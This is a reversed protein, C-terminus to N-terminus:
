HHNVASGKKEMFFKKRQTMSLLFGYRLRRFSPSVSALWYDFLQDTGTLIMEKRDTYQWEGDEWQYPDGHLLRSPKFTTGRRGFGSTYNKKTCAYAYQDKPRHFIAELLM